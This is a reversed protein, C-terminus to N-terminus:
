YQAVATRSRRLVLTEAPIVEGRDGEKDVLRDIM